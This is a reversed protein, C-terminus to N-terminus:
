ASRGPGEFVHIGMAAEEGGLMGGGNQTLALRAGQV